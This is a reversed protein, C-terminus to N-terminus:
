HRYSNNRHVVCHFSFCGVPMGLHKLDVEALNTGGSSECGGKEEIKHVFTLKVYDASTLQVRVCLPSADLQYQGRPNRDSDRRTELIYVAHISNRMKPGCISEMSGDTLQIDLAKETPAVREPPPLISQFATM